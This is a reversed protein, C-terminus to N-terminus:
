DDYMSCGAICDPYPGGCSQCGFPIDNNDEYNWDGEDMTYGCNPCKFECGGSSYGMTEGCEPCDPCFGAYDPIDNYSKKMGFPEGEKKILMSYWFFLLFSLSWTFIM